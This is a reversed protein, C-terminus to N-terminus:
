RREGRERREREVKQQNKTFKVGHVGIGSIERVKYRGQSKAVGRVFFFFFLISSFFFVRAISAATQRHTM